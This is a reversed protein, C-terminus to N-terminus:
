LEVETVDFANRNFRLTLIHTKRSEYRSMISSLVYSRLSSVELDSDTPDFLVGNDKTTMYIKEGPKIFCEALVVMGPNKEYIMMFLEEFLLTVRM